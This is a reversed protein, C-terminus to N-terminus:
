GFLRYNNEVEPYGILIQYAEYLKPALESLLVSRNSTRDKAVEEIKETLFKELEPHDQMFRQYYTEGEQSYEGGKYFKMWINGYTETGRIDRSIFDEYSIVEKSNQIQDYREKNRKGPGDQFQEMPM